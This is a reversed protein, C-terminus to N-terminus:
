KDSITLPPSGPEDQAAGADDIPTIPEASTCRLGYSRWAVKLFSRLARVAQDQSLGGDATLEIRFGHRTMQDDDKAQPTAATTAPRRIENPCFRHNHSACLGGTKSNQESHTDHTVGKRTM